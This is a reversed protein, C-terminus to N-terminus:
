EHLIIEGTRPHYDPHVFGDPMKLSFKHIEGDSAGDYNRLISECDKYFNTGRDLQESPIAAFVAGFKAEFVKLIRSIIATTGCNGGNSVCTEAIRLKSDTGLMTITTADVTLAGCDLVTVAKGKQLSDTLHRSVPRSRVKFVKKFDELNMMWRSDIFAASAAAHAESIYTIKNGDRDEFGAKKVSDRLTRRGAESCAAPYTFVYHFSDDPQLPRGLSKTVEERYIKHVYKLLHVMAKRYKAPESPRLLKKAINQQFIRDDLPSPSITRAMCLKSYATITMGKQVEFGTYAEERGIFKEHGENDEPLATVAPLKSTEAGGDKPWKKRAKM